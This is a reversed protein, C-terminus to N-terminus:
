PLLRTRILLSGKSWRLDSISFYYIRGDDLEFFGNVDFHNPKHFLMNKCHPMLLDIFEKKFIRHFELYQPTRACSSEFDFGLLYLSKSLLGDSKSKLIKRKETEVEADYEEQLGSLEKEKQHIQKLIEEKM